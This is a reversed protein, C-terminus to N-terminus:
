GELCKPGRNGPLHRARCLQGPQIRHAPTVTNPQSKPAPGQRPIPEWQERPTAHELCEPRWSSRACSCRARATCSSAASRGLDPDPDHDGGPGPDGRPASRRRGATHRRRRAARQVRRACSIVTTAIRQLVTQPPDAHLPEFRARKVEAGADYLGKLHNVWGGPMARLREMLEEDSATLTGSEDTGGMEQEFHANRLALEAQAAQVQRRRDLARDVAAQTPPKTPGPPM